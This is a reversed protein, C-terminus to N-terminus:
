LKRTARERKRSLKRTCKEFDEEHIVLIKGIKNKKVFDEEYYEM